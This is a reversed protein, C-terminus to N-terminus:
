PIASVKFGGVARQDRRQAPVQQIILMGTLPRQKLLEISGVTVPPKANHGFQSEVADPLGDADIFHEVRGGAELGGPHLVPVREDAQGLLVADIEHRDTPVDATIVPEIDFAESVTAAAPTVNRFWCM